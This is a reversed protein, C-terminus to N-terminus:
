QPASSAGCIPKGSQDLRPTLAVSPEGPVNFFLYQCGTDKDVFVILPKNTQFASGYFVMGQVVHPAVNGTVDAASATAVMGFAAVASILLRAKFDKM